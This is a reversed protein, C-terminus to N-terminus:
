VNGDHGGSRCPEHVIARTRRRLAGGAGCTRAAGTVAISPDAELAALGFGASHHAAPDDQTPSRRVLRAPRRVSPPLTAHAGSLERMVTAICDRRTTTGSSPDPACTTAVPRKMSGAQDGSPVLM